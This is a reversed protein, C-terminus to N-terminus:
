HRWRLRPDTAAVRILYVVAPLVCILGTVLMPFGAQPRTLWAILDGDGCAGFVLALQAGLSEPRARLIRRLQVNSSIRSSPTRM